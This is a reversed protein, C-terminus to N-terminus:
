RNQWMTVLQRGSFGASLDDEDMSQAVSERARPNSAPSCSPDLGPVHVAPDSRHSTAAGEIRAKDTEGTPERPQSSIQGTEDFENWGGVM